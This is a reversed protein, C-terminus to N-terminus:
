TKGKLKALAAFPSVKVPDGSPEKWDLVAGEKRPYLDLASALTEFVIRGIEMRGGTIPEIDEDREFDASLDMPEDLVDVARRRTQEDPRFEVRVDEAIRAAVPELTVVCAQVLKASLRGSLRYAGGGANKIGYAFVVEEAGLINLASTIAALEEATARREAKVGAEPISEPTHTWSALPLPAIDDTM